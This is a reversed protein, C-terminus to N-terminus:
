VEIRGDLVRKLTRPSDLYIAYLILVAGSPSQAGNEYESVRTAAGLGLARAMELGNLGLKVRAAKLEEPTM